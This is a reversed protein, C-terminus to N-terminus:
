SYHREQLLEASSDLFFVSPVHTGDSIEFIDKMKPKKSKEEPKPPPAVVPVRMDELRTDQKNGYGVFTIQTSRM